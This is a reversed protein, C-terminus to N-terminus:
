TCTCVYVISAILLAKNIKYKNKRACIEVTHSFLQNNWVNVFPGRLSNYFISGLSTTMEECRFRYLFLIFCNIGICSVTHEENSPMGFCHHGKDPRVHVGLTGIFRELHKSCYPPSALSHDLEFMSILACSAM